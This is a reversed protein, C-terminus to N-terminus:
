LSRCPQRRCRRGHAPSVRSTLGLQVRFRLDALMEGASQYRDAPSKAMARAIIASCAPPISANVSRPEPIEGQCHGFMVQIVSSSEEYPNKGTLLSYYTAGLSYIDSRADVPKADCQEPSMFYPTGVVMGAQTMERARASTTKALGFDTIKVSGDAAKMLNAPKMDRHILGVAHAAALGKCADIAIRTADLLSRPHALDLGDAVSGGPILEMVLFYARGEQGIEYISVVNAHNLKGAAKAEALFRALATEDEALEEPLLKIAVDREILPDRGRFVIGMGGQGLIGVVQYKGLARGIWAAAATSSVPPRSPATDSGRAIAATELFKPEAPKGSTGSQSASRNEETSVHREGKQAEIRIQRTGHGSSQTAM